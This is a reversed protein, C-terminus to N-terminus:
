GVWTAGGTEGYDETSQAAAMEALKGESVLYHQIARAAEPITGSFNFGAAAQHGGGGHDAALKSVDYDSRARLNIRVQKRGTGDNLSDERLLASVEAGQVARLIAILGETDDLAVGLEAFDNETVWSYVAIGDILYEMREVLRADLKFSGMTRTDYLAQSIGVPDAGAAVMEAAASFVEPSNSSFSFRGTDTILALMCATAMAPTIQEGSAKILDWVLMGTAAATADHLVYDAFDEPNQHHDIMITAGARDLVPQAKDMRSAVSLDLAILLDPTGTYDAARVYDLEFGYNKLFTFLKPVEDIRALLKTVHMGRAELLLSLALVSGIADGDPNLHAVLAATKGPQFLELIQAMNQERDFSPLTM